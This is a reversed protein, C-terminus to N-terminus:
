EIIDGVSTKKAKKAKKKWRIDKPFSKLKDRFMLKNEDENCALFKNDFDVWGYVKEHTGYPYNDYDIFRYSKRRKDKLNSLFLVSTQFAKDIDSDSCARFINEVSIARKGKEVYPNTVWGGRSCEYYYGLDHLQHFATYYAFFWFRDQDENLNAPYIYEVCTKYEEHYKNFTRFFRQHFDLTKEVQKFQQLDSNEKAADGIYLVNKKVINKEDKIFDEKKLSLYKYIYDYLKYCSLRTKKLQDNGLIVSNAGMFYLAQSADILAGMRYAPFSDDGTLNSGTGNEVFAVVSEWDVMKVLQDVNKVKGFKESDPQVGILVMRSLWDESAVCSGSPCYQEVYAGVVKAEFYNSRFFQQYYGKSGFVIIKQPTNLQDYLRPVIGMSFPPKYVDKQTREFKDKHKCFKRNVFLQGSAVDLDYGYDSGEPTTIIINLTNKDREFGPLVDYFMHTQPEGTKDLLQFRKLTKFWYPKINTVFSKRYNSDDILDDSKNFSCGAIVLLIIIKKVFLQIKISSKIEKM